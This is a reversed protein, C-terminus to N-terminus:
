EATRAGSFFLKFPKHERSFIYDIGFLKLRKPQQALYTLLAWRANLLSFVSDEGPRSFKIPSSDSDYFGVFVM